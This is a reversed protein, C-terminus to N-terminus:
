DTGFVKQPPVYADSPRPAPAKPRPKVPAAAAPTSPAAAANNTGGQALTSKPRPKSKDSASGQEVKVPAKARPPVTTASPLNTKAKQQNIARPDAKAPTKARPQVAAAQPEPQPKARPCRFAITEDMEILKKVQELQASGLNAKGWAAGKDFNARAGIKELDGVERKLQDCTQGDLPAATALSGLAAAFCIAVTAAATSWIVTGRRRAQDM